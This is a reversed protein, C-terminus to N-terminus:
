PLFVVSPGILDSIWKALDVKPFLKSKNNYFDCYFLADTSPIIM